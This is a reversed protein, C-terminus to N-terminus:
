YLNLRAQAIGHDTLYFFGIDRAAATLEKAAHSLDYLDPLVCTGNGSPGGAPKTSGQRCSCTRSLGIGPLRNDYDRLSITLIPRAM